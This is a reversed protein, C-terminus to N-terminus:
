QDLQSLLGRVRPIAATAGKAEFRRIGEEMAARAEGVRGMTALVEGRRVFTEGQEVLADTGEVLEVAEASLRDAEDLEGRGALIGARVARWAVQSSVDQPASSEESVRTLEEAEVGRGQRLVAEALNAAM